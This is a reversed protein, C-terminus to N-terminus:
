ISKEFVEVIDGPRVTTLRNARGEVKHGEEVRSLSFKDQAASFTFGGALAVAGLVTMGPTYRYRGPNNVEGLVYVPQYQLVEVSVSPKTFLKLGILRDAIASQLQPATMGGAHITGLLPLAITGAESIHFRGSLDRDAFTVVGVEDGPALRYSGTGTDPLPQLGAIPDDCGGAALALVYLASLAMRRGTAIPNHKRMAHQAM